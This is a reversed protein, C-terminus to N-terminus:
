INAFCGFGDGTSKCLFLDRYFYASNFFFCMGIKKMKAGEM